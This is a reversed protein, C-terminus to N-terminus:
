KTMMIQETGKGSGLRLFYQGSALSAPLNLRLQHAGASQQENMLEVIVRGQLDLLSITINSASELQYNLMAYDTVPNPYVKLSSAAAFSNHISLVPGRLLRVTAFKGTDGAQKSGTIVIKDDPQIFLGTESPGTFDIDTVVKGDKGFSMDLNGDPNFRVACLLSSTANDAYGSLVIRGDAQLAVSNAVDNYTNVDVTTKKFLTGDSNYIALAFDSYLVDNSSGGVIVKGSPGVAVCTGVDGLSRIDTVVRGHVGFSEDVSGDALLRVVAIVTSLSTTATGALLIKGDSQLSLSYAGSRLLGVKLKVFGNVGFSSDASGDPKLRVVAFGEPNTYGGLLIKNDAQVAIGYGMNDAGEYVNSIAFGNTGFSSDATGNTKLRGSIFAINGVPTMSFGTYVVKGDAQLAIDNLFNFTYTVTGSKFSYATKALGNTGFSMDPSGDTNYRSFAFGIDSDKQYYGAAIIKGDTQLANAQGTVFAGPFGTIVKGTGNFSLDYAGAQASADLHQGIFFLCSALIVKKM